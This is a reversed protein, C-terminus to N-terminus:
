PEERAEARDLRWAGSVKRLDLVGIGRFPGSGMGAPGRKWRATGRWTVTAAGAEEEIEFREIGGDLILRDGTFFERALIGHLEDWGWTRRRYTVEFGDTLCGRIRRLNGAAFSETLTQVLQQIRDRDSRLVCSVGRYAAYIAVVALVAVLVRRGNM